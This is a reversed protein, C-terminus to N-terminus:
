EKPNLPLVLRSMMNADGLHDDVPKAEDDDDDDDVIDEEDALTVAMEPAAIVNDDSMDDVLEELPAEEKVVIAIYKEMSDAILDRPSSTVNRAVEVVASSDEAYDDTATDEVVSQSQVNPEQTPAALQKRISVCLEGVRADHHQVPLWVNAVDALQWATPPLECCGIYGDHHLYNEDKIEIALPANLCHPPFTLEQHWVPDRGGDDHTRTRFSMDGCTVLCYPDQKGVWQADYLGRASEITVLLADYTRQSVEISSALLSAQAPKIHPSPPQVLWPPEVATSVM